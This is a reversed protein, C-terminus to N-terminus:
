HLLIEASEIFSFFFFFVPAPDQMSFLVYLQLFCFKIRISMSRWAHTLWNQILDHFCM